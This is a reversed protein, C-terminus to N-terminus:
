AHSQQMPAHKGMQTNVPSELITKLNRLSLEIDKGLIKDVRFLMLALNSPFPMRSSFLWRLRTGEKGSHQDADVALFVKAFGKFPRQFRIDIDIREGPIVQRIEQEGAGAKKNGDWAYIFGSSGDTGTYTKKMSPDTMVWKNFYDQNKLYRIYEFVDNKSRKIRIEKEIMYSKRGFLAILLLGGIICAATILITVM